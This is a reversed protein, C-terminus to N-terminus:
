PVRHGQLSNSMDTSTETTMKDEPTEAMQRDEQTLAYTNQVASLSYVLDKNQAQTCHTVSHSCTYNTVRWVTQVFGFSCLRPLLAGVSWDSCMYIVIYYCYFLLLYCHLHIHRHTYTHIYISYMIVEVYQYRPMYILRSFHNSNLTLLYFHSERWKCMTWCWILFMGM